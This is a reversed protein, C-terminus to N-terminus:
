RYLRRELIRNVVYRILFLLPLVGVSVVANWWNGTIASTLLAVVLGGVYFAVPIQYDRRPGREDIYYYFVVIAGCFASVMGAAGIFNLIGGLFGYLPALAQDLAGSPSPNPFM